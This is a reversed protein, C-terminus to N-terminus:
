GPCRVRGSTIIARVHSYFLLPEFSSLALDFAIESAIANIHPSKSREKEFAGLAAKSDSKVMMAFSRDWWFREWVRLSILM